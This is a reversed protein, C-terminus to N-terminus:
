DYANYNFVFQATEGNIMAVASVCNTDLNGNNVYSCSWNATADVSVFSVRSGSKLKPGMTIPAVVTDPGNNTVTVITQFTTGLSVRGIAETQSDSGVTSTSVISLDANPKPTTSLTAINNSPKTDETDCGQTNKGNAFFTVTPEFNGTYGQKLDAVFSFTQTQGSDIWSHNNAIYDSAYNTRYYPIGVTGSDRHYGLGNLKITDDISINPNSYLNYITSENNSNSRNYFKHVSNEPFDVSFEGYKIPSTGDNTIQVFIEYQLTPSKTLLISSIGTIAADTKYFINDEVWTSNNNLNSDAGGSEIKSFTTPDTNVDSNFYNSCGNLRDAIVQLSLIPNPFIQGCMTLIVLLILFIQKMKTM